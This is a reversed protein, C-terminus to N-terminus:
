SRDSIGSMNCFCGKAVSSAEAVVKATGATKGGMRFLYLEQFAARLRSLNQDSGYKAECYNMWSLMARCRQEQIIELTWKEIVEKRLIMGRVKRGSGFHSCLGQFALESTTM